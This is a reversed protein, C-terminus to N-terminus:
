TSLIAKLSTTKRENLQQDYDCDNANKDRQQQRCDLSRPLSRAPRLACVLDFL